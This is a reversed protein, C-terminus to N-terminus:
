KGIMSLIEDAIIWGMVGFKEEDYESKEGLFFSKMDDSVIFKLGNSEVESMPANDGGNHLTDLVCGECYQDSEKFDKQCDLNKCYILADIADMKQLNFETIYKDLGEHYCGSVVDFVTLRKGVISPMSFCKTPNREIRSM